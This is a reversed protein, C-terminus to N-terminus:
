AQSNMSQEWRWTDLSSTPNSTMTRFCAYTMSSLMTVMKDQYDRPESSVLNWSQTKAPRKLVIHWFSRLMITLSTKSDIVLAMVM